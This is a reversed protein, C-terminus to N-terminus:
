TFTFDIEKEDLKNVKKARLFNNVKVNFNEDLLVKELRLENHVINLNHMSELALVLDKLIRRKNEMTLDKCGKIDNSLRDLVSGHEAYDLILYHCHDDPKDIHAFLNIVKNCKHLKELIIISNKVNISMKSDSVKARDLEKLVFM